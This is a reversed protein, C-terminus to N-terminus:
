LLFRTQNRFLFSFSLSSIVVGPATSYLRYMHMKTYACATMTVCESVFKLVLDHDGEAIVDILDM